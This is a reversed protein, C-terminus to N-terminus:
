LKNPRFVVRGRVKDNVLDELAQPLKKFDVITVDPKILGKSIWKMCEIQEISNGGFNYFVEIERLAFLYNPMVLKFKGLGIMSLTGRKKLYKNSIDVTPQIGVFDFIIDFSQPEHNSKSLDNYFENAGYKLATSKIDPKLDTAVLHCNYNKLIQIANLGLGGCGQVLIKSTPQIKHKVKQIAHFPTLVSDTCVAADEFSVNDPIPLLTRLNKVLLYQQFGGDENLGYCQSTTTCAGDLGKRCMECDGCCFNIQLAFRSGIKFKSDQQKSLESGLKCVSGAIEHGMIFKDSTKLPPKLEIPGGILTHPDSLCLGAAEVKLLLENAGVSPIPIDDFKQITKYRKDYGYGFQTKPISM